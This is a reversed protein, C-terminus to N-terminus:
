PLIQSNNGILLVWIDAKVSESKCNVVEVIVDCEVQFYKCLSWIFMNYVTRKVQRHHLSVREQEARIFINKNRPVTNCWCALNSWLRVNNCSALLECNLQCSYINILCNVLNCCVWNLHEICKVICYVRTNTWVCWCEAMVERTTILLARLILLTPPVVLGCICNSCM